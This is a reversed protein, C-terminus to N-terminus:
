CLHNTRSVPFGLGLGAAWARLGDGTVTRNLSPLGHKCMDYGTSKQGHCMARSQVDKLAEHHM